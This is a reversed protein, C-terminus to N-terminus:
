MRMARGFLAAGVTEATLAVLGLLTFGVLSVGAGLATAAHFGAERRQDLRGAGPFVPTTPTSLVVAAQLANSLLAGGAIAGGIIATALLVLGSALGAGGVAAMAVRKFGAGGTVPSRATSEVVAEGASGAAVEEDASGRLEPYLESVAARIEGELKEPSEHPIRRVSAARVSGDPAYRTLSLLFEEQLSVLSTTILENAQLLGAQLFVCEMSQCDLLAQGEPHEPDVEVDHLSVAHLAPLRNLEQALILPTVDALDQVSSDIQWTNAVLVIKGDDMGHGPPPVAEEAGGETLMAALLSLMCPALM